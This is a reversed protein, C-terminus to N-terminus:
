RYNEGGVKRWCHAPFTEQLEPTDNEELIALPFHVSIANFCHCNACSKLLHDQKTHRKAMGPTLLEAVKQCGHGCGGVLNVNYPCGVCIGARREAEGQEVYPEGSLLKRKISALWDKVNDFTIRVDVPRKDGVDYVCLDPPLCGCLQDEAIEMMNPPIDLANGRRHELIKQEWTWVDMAKSSHGTEHVFRYSFGEADVPPARLNTLLRRM